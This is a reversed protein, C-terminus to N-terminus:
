LFLRISTETGESIHQSTKHETRMRAQAPALSERTDARPTGLSGPATWHGWTPLALALSMLLPQPLLLRLPSAHASIRGTLARLRGVARVGIFRSPLAQLTVFCRLFEGGM